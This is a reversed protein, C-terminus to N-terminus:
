NRLGGMYIRAEWPSLSLLPGDNISRESNCIMLEGPAVSDPLLYRVTTSSMNLVILFGKRDMARQYCFISANNPDLDRYDGYVLAPNVRRFQILSRYYNLISDSRAAQNTANIEKHNPNVPLWPSASTTFGAQPESSWQMPTRSNDRSTLKLMSLYEEASVKGTLVQDTYTGKVEVDQFQGIASFPYNSMGIEDGQYLFPTGKQTLLLTALLKASAERHEPSADGFKNLLRPHDHNGLFFTNWLHRDPNSAAANWIAKLDTLKWAHQRWQRRGIRVADFQFIMNLEGRREDIFLPVQANTVGAAEGVTVVDHHALTERYMEQIYDHTHPGAGYVTDFHAVQDPTMDPLRPDKSIFPIVDMRFGDIGKNLWFRMIEFVEARVKPNDWNLDPQKKAFIHLYYEGDPGDQQWASGGFYSPWNNPVGNEKGPRWIYYDHYPNGNGKRSQQFWEHEDSTHNVVLDIIMKLGRKKTEALLHDFDAMSGFEAMVKRYDRIDYGNDANPSDYHPSIWLVDVGLSKLYDLRQAIGRLDGIGDGNSDQFSRTYIEYFVAEKWWQRKYGNLEPSVSAGPAFASGTAYPDAPLVKHVLSSALAVVTSNMFTRRNM